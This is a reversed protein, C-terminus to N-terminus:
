KTNLTALGATFYSRRRVHGVIAPRRLEDADLV